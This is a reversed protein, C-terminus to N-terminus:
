RSDQYSFAFPCRYDRHEDEDQLEEENLIRALAEEEDVLDDERNIWRAEM